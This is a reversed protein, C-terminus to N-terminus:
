ESVHMRSALSVYQWTLNCKGNPTKTMLVNRSYSGYHYLPNFSIFIVKCSTSNQLANRKNNLLNPHEGHHSNRRRVEVNAPENTCKGSKVGIYKM